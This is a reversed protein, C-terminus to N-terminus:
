APFSRRVLGALAARIGAWTESWGSRIAGNSSTLDLIAGLEADRCIFSAAFLDVTM